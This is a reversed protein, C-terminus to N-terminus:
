ALGNECDGRAFSNSAAELTALLPRKQKQPLSSGEVAAVLDSLDPPPTGGTFTVDVVYLGNTRTVTGEFALAPSNTGEHSMSYSTGSGSPLNEASSIRFDKPHADLYPQELTLVLVSQSYLIENCEDIRSFVFRVEIGTGVGPIGAYVAAFWPYSLCPDDPPIQPSSYSLSCVGEVGVLRVQVSNGTPASLVEPECAARASHFGGICVGFLVFASLWGLWAM